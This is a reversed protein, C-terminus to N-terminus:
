DGFVLRLLGSAPKNVLLDKKVESRPKVLNMHHRIEECKLGVKRWVWNTDGKALADSGMNPCDM